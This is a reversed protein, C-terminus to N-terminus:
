PTLAIPNVPGDREATEHVVFLKGDRITLLGEEYRWETEMHLDRNNSTDVFGLEALVTWIVSWDHCALIQEAAQLRAAMAEPTENEAQELISYLPNQENQQSEEMTM